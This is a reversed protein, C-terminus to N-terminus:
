RSKCFVYLKIEIYDFVLPQALLTLLFTNVRVRLTLGKEGVTKAVVAIVM